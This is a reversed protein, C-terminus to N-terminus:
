VKRALPVLPAREQQGWVARPVWLVKRVPPEQARRAVRVKPEVLEPLVWYGM